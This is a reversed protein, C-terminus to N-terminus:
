AEDDSVDGVAEVRSVAVGYGAAQFKKSNSRPLRKNVAAFSCRGDFFSHAYPTRLTAVWRSSAAREREGREGKEGEGRVVRGRGKGRVVRGRGEREWERERREDEGVREAGEGGGLERM